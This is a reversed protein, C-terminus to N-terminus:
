WVTLVLRLNGCARRLAPLVSRGGSEPGKDGTTSLTEPQMVQGAAPVTQAAVFAVAAAVFWLQRKM